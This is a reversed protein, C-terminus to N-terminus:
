VLRPLPRCSGREREDDDRPLRTLMDQREQAGDLRMDAEVVLDDDDIVARVVPRGGSDLMVKGVDANDGLPLVLAEDM